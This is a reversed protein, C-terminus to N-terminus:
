SWRQWCPVLEFPNSLPKPIEFWYLNGTKIWIRYGLLVIAISDIIWVLDMRFGFEHERTEKCGQTRVEWSTFQLKLSRPANSANSFKDSSCFLRPTTVVDAPFWACAIANWPPFNPIGTVTTIGFVAGSTLTVITKQGWAFLSTTFAFLCNLSYKFSIVYLWLEM